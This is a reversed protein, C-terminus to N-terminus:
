YPTRSFRNWIFFKKAYINNGPTLGIQVPMKLLPLFEAGFSVTGITSTIFSDNFGMIYDCSLSYHKQQYLVALRSETPVRTTFSQISETDHENVIDDDEVDYAYASDAKVLFHHRENTGIWNMQWLLNDLSLGFKLHSIPESCLSIMTKVGYGGMGTKVYIDHKFDMGDTGTHLVGRYSETEVVGIGILGSVSVGLRIDPLNLNRAYKSINIDGYGISIDQYSLASLQNNDKDFFYDSEENGLLAIKVYRDSLRVNGVAHSSTAVAINNFIMGFLVFNAETFASVGGKVKQLIMKKDAASL